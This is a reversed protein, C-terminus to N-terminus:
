RPITLAEHISKQIEKESLQTTFTLFIHHCSQM